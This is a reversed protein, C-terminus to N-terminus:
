VEAAAERAGDGLQTGPSFETKIVSCYGKESERQLWQQQVVSTHLAWSAWGRHADAMGLSHLWSLFVCWPFAWVLSFGVGHLRPQPPVMEAAPCLWSRPAPLTKKNIEEKICYQDETIGTVHTYDHRSTETARRGWNTCCLFKARIWSLAQTTCVSSMGSSQACAFCCKTAQFSLQLFEKTDTNSKQLKM